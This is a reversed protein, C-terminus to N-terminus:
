IIYESYMMPYDLIRPIKEKMKMYLLVLHLNYKFLREDKILGVYLNEDTKDWKEKWDEEYEITDEKGTCVMYFLKDYLENLREEMVDINYDKGNLAKYLFDNYLDVIKKNLRKMEDSLETRGYLEFVSKAIDIGVIKKGVIIPVGNIRIFDGTKEYFKDYYKM